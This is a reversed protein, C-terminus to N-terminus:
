VLQGLNIGLSDEVLSIKAGQQIAGHSLATTFASYEYLQISNFKNIKRGNQTFTMHACPISPGYCGTGHQCAAVKYLVRVGVM